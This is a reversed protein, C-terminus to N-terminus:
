SPASQGSALVTPTGVVVFARASIRVVRIVWAANRLRGAGNVPRVVVDAPEAPAYAVESEAGPVEGEAYAVESEAGPVEGEAYAVESEAGTVEGEAYAM